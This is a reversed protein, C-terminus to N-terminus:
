YEIELGKTKFDVVVSLPVIQTKYSNKEEIFSVTYNTVNIEHETFSTSDGYIGEKYNLIASTIKLTINEIGSNVISLEIDYKLKIVEDIIEVDEDKLTYILEENYLLFDPSKLEIFKDPLIM